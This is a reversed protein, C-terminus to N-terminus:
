EGDYVETPPTNREAWMAELVGDGAHGFRHGNPSARALASRGATTTVGDAHQVWGSLGAVFKQVTAPGEPWAVGRADADLYAGIAKSLREHAGTPVPREPEAGVAGAARILLARERFIDWPYPTARAAKWATDWVGVWQQAWVVEPKPPAKPKRKKPPEPAPPLDLTAPPASEEESRSPSRSPSRSGVGRTDGETRGPETGNGDQNRGEGYNKSTSGEDIGDETRGVDTRTGDETRGRYAKWAEAVRPDGWEEERQLLLRARKEGWGWRRAFEATKPWRVKSGPALVRSQWWRADMVALFPDVVAGTERARILAQELGLDGDVEARLWSM